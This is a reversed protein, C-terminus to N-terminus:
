ENMLMDFFGGNLVMVEMIILKVSVEMLIFEIVLWSCRVKLEFFSICLKLKRIVMILRNLRFLIRSVM